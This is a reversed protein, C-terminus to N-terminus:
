PRPMKREVYEKFDPSYWQRLNEKYWWEIVKPNTVFKEFVFESGKPYLGYSNWLYFEMEFADLNYAIFQGEQLRKMGERSSALKVTSDYDEVPVILSSYEPRELLLRDIEMYHSQVTNVANVEDLVRSKRMQAVAVYMQVVAVVLSGLLLVRGIQDLTRWKWKWHLWEGCDKCKRATKRVDEGCYKCSLTENETPVSLRRM